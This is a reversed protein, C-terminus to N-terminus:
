FGIKELLLKFYDSEKADTKPTIIVDKGESPMKKDNLIVYDENVLNLNKIKDANQESLPISLNFLKNAGEFDTLDLSDVTEFGLNEFFNEAYESLSDIKIEPFTACIVNKQKNSIPSMDHRGLMISKVNDQLHDDNLYYDCLMFAAQYGIGM